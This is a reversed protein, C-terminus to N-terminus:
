KDKNFIIKIDRNIPRGQARGESIDEVWNKALNMVTKITKDDEKTLKRVESNIGLQKLINSTLEREVKGQFTEQNSLFHMINQFVYKIRGLISADEPRLQKKANAVDATPVTYTEIRYAKQSDLPDSM